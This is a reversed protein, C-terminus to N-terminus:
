DKAELRFSQLPFPRGWVVREGNRDDLTAHDAHQEVVTLNLPALKKHLLAAAFNKATFRVLTSKTGNTVNLLRFKM